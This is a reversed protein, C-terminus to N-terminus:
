DNRASIENSGGARSDAWAADESGAACAGVAGADARRSRREDPLGSGNARRALCIGGGRQARAGAGAHRGLGGGDAMNAHTVGREERGHAIWRLADNLM